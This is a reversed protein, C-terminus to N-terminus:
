AAEKVTGRVDIQGTVAAFILASRREKLLAIARDSQDHLADYRRLETDLFSAIAKQEKVPPLALRYQYLDEMRFSAQMHSPILAREYNFLPQFQYFFYRTDLGAHRPIIVMCNQSLSFRGKLHMVTMVKASGVTTSFLYGDSGADFEYGEIYGMVGENETQGSYVPYDGAISACYERTLQAANSGKKAVFHRSVKVIEWHAPMQGLWPIGSDKMPAKADLGRTVVHSITAQRKEALLALLKEQEAILADIKATESDLFAAIADQEPIEPLLIPVTLLEEPGLTQRVGGGLGNFVKTLYLAMFYWYAFRPNVGAQAELRIYAPSMIGREPVIGVRSTKINQLDILKFVLDGPEFIQYDEYDSSQLGDLDDISRPIVGAMTLALRDECVM